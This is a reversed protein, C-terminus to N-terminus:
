NCVNYIFMQFARKEHSSDWKQWYPWQKFGLPNQESAAMKWGWARDSSGLHWLLHQWHWAAITPTPVVWTNCISLCQNKKRGRWWHNKIASLAFYNVKFLVAKKMQEKRCHIEFSGSTGNQCFYQQSDTSAGQWPRKSLAPRPQAGSLLSCHPPSTTAAPCM